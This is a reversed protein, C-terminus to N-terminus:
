YTFEDLAQPRGHGSPGFRQGFFRMFQVREYAAPDASAAQSMVGRFHDLNLYEHEEMWNQLGDLMIQIHDTGHLYFTSVSQAVKAGALLAKILGESNHVGTSAALDCKVRGSMIAIWRLPM